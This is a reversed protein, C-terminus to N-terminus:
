IKLFTKKIVPTVVPLTYVRRLLRATTKSVVYYFNVNKL